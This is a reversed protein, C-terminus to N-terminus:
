KKALCKTVFKVKVLDVANKADTIKERADEPWSRYDYDAPSFAELGHVWASDAYGHASMLDDLALGCNDGRLDYDVEKARRKAVELDNNFRNLHDDASGGLGGLKRSVKKRKAM